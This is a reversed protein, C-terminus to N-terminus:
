NVKKGKSLSTKEHEGVFGGSVTKRMSDEQKCVKGCGSRESVFKDRM